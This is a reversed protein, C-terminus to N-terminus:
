TNRVKTVRDDVYRRMGDCEEYNLSSIQKDLVEVLSDTEVFTREIPM